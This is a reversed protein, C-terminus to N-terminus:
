KQPPKNTDGKPIVSYLEPKPRRATCELVVMDCVQNGYRDPRPTPNQMITMKSSAMVVASADMASSIQEIVDEITYGDRQVRGEYLHKGLFLVEDIIPPRSERARQDNITQLQISTLTGVVIPRVRNGKEIENLQTRILAPANDFLPM